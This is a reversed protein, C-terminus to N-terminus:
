LASIGTEDDILDEKNLFPANGKAICFMYLNMLPDIPVAPVAGKGEEALSIVGEWTTPIERGIKEFLDSRYSAAPM